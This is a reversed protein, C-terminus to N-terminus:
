PTGRLFYPFYRHFAAYQELADETMRIDEEILHGLENRLTAGRETDCPLFGQLHLREKTSLDPIDIRRPINDWTLNAFEWDSFANDISSLDDRPWIVGTLTFMPTGDKYYFSSIPNFTLQTIEESFAEQVAIQLMQKLLTAFDETQWPPYDDPHPLLSEFKNRFDKSKHKKKRIGRGNRPIIWYDFPNARLTIKIVSGKVVKTILSIFDAFSTYELGTYDLWFISKRDNAEYTTIFSSMDSNLIRIGGCPRHFNQRNYVEEDEEISVMQIEPCYEYILRMDELYPGGLGFYTYDMLNNGLKPLRRIAEILAFRDAAKNKRLHYPPASM